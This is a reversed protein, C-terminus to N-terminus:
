HRALWDEVTAELSEVLGIKPAWGLARIRGTDLHVLPSDGLWGRPGESFVLRAEPYGARRRVVEALACVDIIEHHGLNFVAKRGTDASLATFIGEVADRVDLFSKRQTGDGLVELREPTARLKACFDAVVGHWYRPGTCSVFRFALTRLGYYEAYAQAMAEGALKSAGYLSTQVLPEDEPTPFQHPEGYVTASSAFLFTRAGTQRMAELVNWTPLTNQELDVRPSAV